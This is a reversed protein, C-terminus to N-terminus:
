PDIINSDEQVSEKEEDTGGSECAKASTVAYRHQSSMDSVYSTESSNVTKTLESVKDLSIDKIECSASSSWCLFM